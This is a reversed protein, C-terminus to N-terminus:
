RTKDRIRHISHFHWTSGSAHLGLSPLDSDQDDRSEERQLIDFFFKLTQGSKFLSSREATPLLDTIQLLTSSTPRDLPQDAYSLDTIVERSTYILLGVFHLYPDINNLLPQLTENLYLSLQLHYNLYIQRAHNLRSSQRIISGFQICLRTIDELLADNDAPPDTRECM